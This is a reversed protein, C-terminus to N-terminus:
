SFVKVNSGKTGTDTTTTTITVDGTYACKVLLALIHAEVGSITVREETSERMGSTFM